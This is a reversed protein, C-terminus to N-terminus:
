NAHLLVAGVPLIKMLNSTQFNKRFDISFIETENFDSLFLLPYNVHLSIYMKSLVNGLEELFSVNKLFFPASFILVCMKHEVFM